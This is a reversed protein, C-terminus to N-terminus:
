RLSVVDYPVVAAVTPGSAQEAPHACAGGLGYAGPTKGAFPRETYISSCPRTAPQRSSRARRM